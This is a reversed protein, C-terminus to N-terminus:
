IQPVDRGDTALEKPLPVQLLAKVMDRPIPEVRSTPGVGRGVMRRGEIKTEVEVPTM